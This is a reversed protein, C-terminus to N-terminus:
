KYKDWPSKKEHDDEIVRTAEREAEQHPLKGAKHALYTHYFATFLGLAGPIGSMSAILILLFQTQLIVMPIWVSIFAILSLYILVNVWFIYKEIKGEKRNYYVFFYKVKRLYYVSTTIKLEKKSVKGLSYCIALSTISLALYLLTWFLVSRITVAELM